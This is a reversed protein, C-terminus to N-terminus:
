IQTVLNGYDEFGEIRYYQKYLRRKMEEISNIPTKILLDSFLRFGLKSALEFLILGTKM